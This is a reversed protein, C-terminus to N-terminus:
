DSALGSEAPKRTSAVRVREGTAASEYAAEVVALVDRAESGSSPPESGRDVSELLGRLLAATGREASGRPNRALRRRRLGREEWAVGEAALEVQLGGRQARKKGVRVLARGGLSARLSAEECDARLEIYRTGAKCLRDITLQALRGGPFEFTVLHIADAKRKEVGASRHAYVAEPLTGFMTLLLDVLHVGGEFLTRDTMERRWAVPEDWPALDMLQWVQCFVLRGIDAEGIRARVAEFIPQARFHHNVAVKRGARDAANLVRDAEDLTSVFPKECFVHAGSEIARECIEAHSDPPTSVIVVDPAMQELLEDLRGFAPTGTDAEWRRREEPRRDHGGVLSAGPVHDLAPRHLCSAAWGLGVVAVRRSM